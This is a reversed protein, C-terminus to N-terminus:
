VAFGECAEVGCSGREEGCLRQEVVGRYRSSQWVISFCCRLVDCRQNGLFVGCIRRVPLDFRWQFSVLSEHVSGETTSCVERRGMSSEQVVIQLSTLQRKSSLTGNSTTQKWLDYNARTSRSSIWNLKAKFWICIHSEKATILGCKSEARILLYM